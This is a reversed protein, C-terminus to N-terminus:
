IYKKNALSGQQLRPLFTVYHVIDRYSLHATFAWLHLDNKWSILRSSNLSGGTEHRGFLVGVNAYGETLRTWSKIMEDSMARVVM